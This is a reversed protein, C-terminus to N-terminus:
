PLFNATATTSLDCIAVFDGISKAGQHFLIDKPVERGCIITIWSSNARGTPNSQPVNFLYTNVYM